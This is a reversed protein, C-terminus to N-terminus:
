AIGAIRADPYVAKFLEILTCDVLGDATYLQYKFTDGQLNDTAIELLHRKLGDANFAHTDGEFIPTSDSGTGGQWRRDIRGVIKTDNLKEM